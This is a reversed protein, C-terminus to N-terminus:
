CHNGGETYAFEWSEVTNSTGIGFIHENHMDNPAGDVTECFFPMSM